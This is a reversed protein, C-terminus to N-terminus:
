PIYGNLDNLLVQNGGGDEEGSGNPGILYFGSEEGEAFNITVFGRYDAQISSVPIPPSFGGLSQVTLDMKNVAVANTGTSTGLYVAVPNEAAYCTVNLGGPINLEVRKQLKFTTTDYSNSIVDKKVYVDLYASSGGKHHSDMVYVHQTVTDGKIVAADELMACVKGFPTLSGSGYCGESGQTSGCTVWSVAQGSDTVAYTTYLNANIQAQAARTGGALLLAAAFWLGNTSGM